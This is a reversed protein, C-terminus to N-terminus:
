PSRSSTPMRSSSMSRPAADTRTAHSCTWLRVKFYYIITEGYLFYNTVAFFYWNFTKSWARGKPDTTVKPDEGKDKMGLTFLATVERYVLSQCLMVLLIMYVHGMLLLVLLFVCSGWDERDRRASACLFGGIMIFTWLTRIGANRMKKAHEDQPAGSLTVPVPRTGIVDGHTGRVELQLLKPEKLLPPKSPHDQSARRKRPSLPPAEPSHEALARRDLASPGHRAAPSEAVSGNPAPAPAPEPVPM